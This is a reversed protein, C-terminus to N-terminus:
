GDVSILNISLGKMDCCGNMEKVVEPRNKMSITNETLYSAAISQFPSIIRSKPWFLYSFSQMQGKVNCRSNELTTRPGQVQGVGNNGINALNVKKNLDQSRIHLENKVYVQKYPRKVTKSKVTLCLWQSLKGKPSKEQYLSTAGKWSTISWLYEIVIGLCCTM